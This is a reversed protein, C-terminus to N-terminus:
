TGEDNPKMRYTSGDCGQWYLPPMERPQPWIENLTSGEYLRGNKMVYRLSNTDQIDELPNRDLVQLDALKGVEISGFDKGHGIAEAGFITGVRLVDHPPMGGMALAWLEWHVGFGPLQGHSGLGVRGGAAMLRAAQAAYNPLLCSKVQASRARKAMDVYVRMAYPPLFHQLRTQKELDFNAFFYSEGFQQGEDPAVLLTPTYTVGSKALFQLVDEHLPVTSIYHELGSNGDLIIPLISKINGSVQHVKLSLKYEHAAMVLWQEQLRNGAFHRKFTETDDFEAHRRAIARADDLTKIDERNLVTQGTTFLRPGLLDGIELRDM